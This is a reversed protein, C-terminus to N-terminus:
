HFIREEFLISISVSIHTPLGSEALSRLMQSFEALYTSFLNLCADSKEQIGFFVQVYSQMPLLLPVLYSIYMCYVVKVKNFTYVTSKHQLNHSTVFSLLGMPRSVKSIGHGTM